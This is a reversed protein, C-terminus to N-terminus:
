QPVLMLSYLNAILRQTYSSKCSQDNKFEEISMWCCESIERADPTPEIIASTTIPFLFMIERFHHNFMIFEPGAIKADRLVIGTEERLERLAASLYDRDCRKVSGKPVGLVNGTFDQRAKERVTLVKGTEECILIVGCRINFNPYERSLNKLDLSLVDNALAARNKIRHQPM